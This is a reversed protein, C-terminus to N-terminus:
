ARFWLSEGIPLGWGEFFSPFVTSLCNEYLLALEADSPKDIIHVSGGVNGTYSLFYLVDEAGWGKGGALVLELALNRLGKISKWAELLGLVNKRVEITGVCLIYNGRSLSVVERRPLRESPRVESKFEHALGITIINASLNNECLYSELERATYVSNCVLLDSYKSAAYLWDRFRANKRRDTLDSYKPTTVPFIDHVFSITKCGHKRAIKEVEGYATSWGAGITVIASGAILELEHFFSPRDGSFSADFRTRLNKSAAWRAQLLCWSFFRKLPAKHYKRLKRAIWRAKGSSLGCRLALDNLDYPGNMFSLDATKLEGTAPHRLLGFVPHEDNKRIICEIIRLACRQIGTVTNHVMAYEVVDTIDFYLAVTTQRALLDRQPVKVSSTRGPESTPVQRLSSPM